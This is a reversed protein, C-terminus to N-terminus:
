KKAFFILLKAFTFKQTLLGAYKGKKPDTKACILSFPLHFGLSIAPKGM